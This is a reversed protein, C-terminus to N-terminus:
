KILTNYFWIKLYDKFLDKAVNLIFKIVDNAVYNILM